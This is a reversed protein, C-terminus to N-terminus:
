QLLERQRVQAVLKPNVGGLLVVPLLLEELIVGHNELSTWISGVLATLLIGQGFLHSSQLLFELLLVFNHGFQQLLM